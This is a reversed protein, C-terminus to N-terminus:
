PGIRFRRFDCGPCRDSRCELIRGRTQPFRRTRDPRAPRPRRCGRSRPRPIMRRQFVRKQPDDVRIFRVQDLPEGDVRAEGRELVMRITGTCVKASVTSRRFSACSRHPVRGHDREGSDGPGSRPRARRGRFPCRHAGGVPGSDFAGDVDELGRPTGEERDEVADRPVVEVPVGRRSRPPTPLIQRWMYRTSTQNRFRRPISGTMVCSAGPGASSIAPRIRAIWSCIM